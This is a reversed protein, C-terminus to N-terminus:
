IENIEKCQNFFWCFGLISRKSKYCSPLLSKFTGFITYICCIFMNTSLNFLNMNTNHRCISATCIAYFYTFLCCSSHGKEHLIPSLTKNSFLLLRLSLHM